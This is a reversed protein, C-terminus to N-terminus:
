EDRGLETNASFIIQSYFNLTTKLIYKPIACLVTGVLKRKKEERKEPIFVCKLHKQIKRM